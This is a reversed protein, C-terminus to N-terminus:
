SYKVNWFINVSLVNKLPIGSKRLCLKMKDGHISSAAIYTNEAPVLPRIRKLTEEILSSNSCIKLFQKPKKQRSLPWFRSGAGGSLIITYRM